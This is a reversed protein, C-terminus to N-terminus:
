LEQFSLIIERMKQQLEGAKHELTWTYVQYYNEKGEIVGMGYFLDLGDITANFQITKAPLGHIIEDTFGVEEEIMAAAQINNFVIETYTALDNNKNMWEESFSIAEGFEEISEDIVLAYLEKWINQYQFSAEDNLNTTKSMHSPVAVSYLNKVNITKTSDAVKCSILVIAFSFLLCLKKM